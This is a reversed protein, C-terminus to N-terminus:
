ETLLGRMYRVGAETEERERAITENLSGRPSVWTEIVANL